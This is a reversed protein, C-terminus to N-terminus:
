PMLMVQEISCSAWGMITDVHKDWNKHANFSVICHGDYEATFGYKKLLGVASLVYFSVATLTDIVYYCM